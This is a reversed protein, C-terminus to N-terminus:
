KSPPLGYENEHPDSSKICWYLLPFLGGIITFTIWYWWGSRNVDHLRRVLVSINAPLCILMILNSAIALEPKQIIVSLFGIIFSMIFQFFAFYWYESRSARGKFTFSKKLCTVVSEILNM